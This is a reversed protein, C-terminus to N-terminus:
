KGKKLIKKVYASKLKNYLVRDQGAKKAWRQKLQFLKKVVTQHKKLYDRFFLHRRYPGGGKIMIHIHVDGLKTPGTKSLFIRVQKKPHVNIFGAKKLKKIIRNAEDWNKIGIMVDVIGKGGLDPVSTSCIHEININGLIVILKNKERKFINLFKSSYPHILKRM